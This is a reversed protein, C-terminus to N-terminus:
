RQGRQSPLAAMVVAAALLGILGLVAWRWDGTMLWAALGALLPLLALAAAPHGTNTTM